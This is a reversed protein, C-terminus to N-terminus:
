CCSCKETIHLRDSDFGYSAGIYITRITGVILIVAGRFIERVNTNIDTGGTRTIVAFSSIPSSNVPSGSQHVVSEYRVRMSLSLTERLYEVETSAFNELAPIKSDLLKLLSGLSSDSAWSVVSPAIGEGL